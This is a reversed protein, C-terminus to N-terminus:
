GGSSGLSTIGSSASGSSGGAGAAAGALSSADTVQDPSPLTPKPQPGYKVFDVTVKTGVRQGSVSQNLTFQMRRVLNHDDIWVTTPITHLNTAKEIAQVGSQASARSSPPLSDAVKDLGITAKYKTTQVGNVVETGAQTVTGAARLYQLFQSPDSSAPNNVLSALGPVGAASAATALDIKIWPKGALSPIKSALEEPFKLYITTHDIVEDLHLTSSGLVQTIQPSSGLDMDLAIAGQRDPVDFTGNGTANIAQPLAPSGLQLTFRMQYGSTDGSVFAARVVQNASASSSSSSSSGCGAVVLAAAACVAGTALGGIRLRGLPM